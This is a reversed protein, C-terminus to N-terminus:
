PQDDSDPRDTARRGKHKGTASRLLQRVAAAVEEAVPRNAPNRQTMAGLIAPWADPLTDPIVPDSVLRASM